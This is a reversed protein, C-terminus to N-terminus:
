APTSEPSSPSTGQACGPRRDGHRAALRWGPASGSLPTARLFFSDPGDNAGSIRAYFLLQDGLNIGDLTLGTLLYDAYGTGNHISPLETGGPGPSYSALM